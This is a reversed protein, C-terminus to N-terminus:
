RTNSPRGGAGRHERPRAIKIIATFNVCQRPAGVDLSKPAIANWAAEHRGWESRPTHAPCKKLENKASLLFMWYRTSAPIHGSVTRLHIVPTHIAVLCSRSPSELSRRVGLPAHTSVGGRKALRGQRRRVRVPLFIPFDGREFTRGLALRGSAQIM